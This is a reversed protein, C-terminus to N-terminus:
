RVSGAELWLSRRLKLGNAGGGAFCTGHPKELLGIFDDVSARKEEDTSAHARTHQKVCLVHHTERAGEAHDYRGFACNPTAILRM